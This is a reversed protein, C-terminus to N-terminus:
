GGAVEITGATEERRKPLLIELVGNHQSAEIRQTDVTAPLRLRTSFRGSPREIRLYSNRAVDPDSRREGRVVLHGKEVQVDVDEPAVGPLDARVVYRGTEEILDLPPHWSGPEGEGDGGPSSSRGLVDEFLRNVTEQLQILDRIPDWRQIAV